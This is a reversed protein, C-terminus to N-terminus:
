GIKGLVNFESEGHRTLWIKRAQGAAMGAKCVQISTPHPSTHTHPHQLHLHPHVSQFFSACLAHPALLGVVGAVRAKM